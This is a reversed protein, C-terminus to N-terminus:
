KEVKVEVKEGAKKLADKLPGLGLLTFCPLEGVKPMTLLLSPTNGDGGILFVPYKGDWIEM